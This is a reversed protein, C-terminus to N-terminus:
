KAKINLDSLRKLCNELAKDHEKRDKGFMTIDDAINKVGKIDSLNRQLINEFLEAISSTGYSLRKYQFLSEHTSFTTIFRSEPELEVQHCAQKLDLRSGNVEAKFDDLTPMIHGERTIAKNAEEMDICIRNGGYKKPVCVIPLVWPTPQDIVNEIIGQETLKTLEKSVAKQMHYPMRRQPQLVQTVDDRIHLKM